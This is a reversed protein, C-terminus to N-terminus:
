AMIEGVLNYSGEVPNWTEQPWFICTYNMKIGCRALGPTPCVSLLAFSTYPLSPPLSTNKCNKTVRHKCVRSGTIRVESEKRATFSKASTWEVLQM